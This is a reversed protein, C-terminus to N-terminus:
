LPYVWWALLASGCYSILLSLVSWTAMCLPVASFRTFAQAAGSRDLDTRGDYQCNAM